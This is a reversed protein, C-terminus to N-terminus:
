GWLLYNESTMVYAGIALNAIAHAFVCDEFRRTMILLLNLMAGTILGPLWRSHSLGFFLMTFIFSVATFRWVPVKEWDAAQLSRNLFYRTFFEEVIPALLISNILHLLATPVDYLPASPTGLFPLYPYNGELAVWILAILAGAIAAHWSLRPKFSYSKRFYILLAGVVALKMAQTILPSLSLAGAGLPVGIYAILPLLYPLM